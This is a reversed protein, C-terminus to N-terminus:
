LVVRDTFRHWSRCGSRQLHGWQRVMAALLKPLDPMGWDLAFAPWACSHWFIQARRDVGGDFGDGWRCGVVGAGGSGFGLM